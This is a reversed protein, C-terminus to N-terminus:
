AGAAVLKDLQGASLTLDMAPLLEELQKVSTASAIPATVGPQAVLWALAIQALTAGTEAAVEDMAKLVALGKGELYATM